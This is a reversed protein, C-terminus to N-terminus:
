RIWKIKISIHALFPTKCIKLIFMMFYYICGWLGQFIIFFLPQFVVTRNPNPLKEPAINFKPLTFTKCNFSACKYRLYPLCIDYVFLNCQIYYRYESPRHTGCVFGMLVNSTLALAPFMYRFFVIGVEWPNGITGPSANNSISVCGYRTYVRSFFM